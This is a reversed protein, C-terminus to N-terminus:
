SRPRSTIEASLKVVQEPDDPPILDVVDWGAQRLMAYRDLHATAGDPHTGCLVGIVNTEYELVLDVDHRGVPFSNTVSAGGFRCAQGFTEATANRAAAASLRMDLPTRAWTLYRGILSSPESVETAFVDIENRARTVLVNFLNANELFRARGPPSTHDIGVVILVHSREAGQFGHTTSIMLNTDALLEPYLGPCAIQSLAAM